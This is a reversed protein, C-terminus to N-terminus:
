VQITCCPNTLFRRMASILLASREDPPNQIRTVGDRGRAFDANNLIVRFYDEIITAQQELNYDLLDRKPALTYRYAHAYRFRHRIMLRVASTRVKLVRNQHQWVHAMEHIFFARRDIDCIAYDSRHADGCAYVHGNPTMGSADPQFFVYRRAHISVRAYDISDRFVSRALATEGATLTRGNM